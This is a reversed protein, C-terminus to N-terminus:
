LPPPSSPASAAPSSQTFREYFGPVRRATQQFFFGVDLGADEWAQMKALMDAHVYAGANEGPANFFLACVEVGVIRNHGAYTVGDMLNGLTKAATGLKNAELAAWAADLEKAIGSFTGNFGFEVQRKQFVKYRAISLSETATYTIGGAEFSEADFAPTVLGTGM